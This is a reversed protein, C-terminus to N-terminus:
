CKDIIDFTIKEPPQMLLEPNTIYKKMAKFGLTYIFGDTAREDVVTQMKVYVKRHVVGSSDQEYCVEKKGISTFVSLTGFEYIHHYVADLGISGMNTIFFSSHFPSLRNIIKPMKGFGDLWSLFRILNRLIVSPIACLIVELVDLDNKNKDERVKVNKDIGSTLKDIREVVDKLTDDCEFEPTITTRESDRRMGKMVVMAGKIVNRSYIKCNKVFRNMEPVDVMARSLAAFIVHYLTLSPMDDMRRKKIFAETKSIEIRAEFLVWSDVKQPMIYPIIMGMPDLNRVKFGDYRDGRRRKRGEHPKM